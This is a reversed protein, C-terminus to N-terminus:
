SRSALGFLQDLEGEELRLPRQVLRLRDHHTQQLERDVDQLALLRVGADADGERCREDAVALRRHLEEVARRPQDHGHRLHRADGDPAMGHRVRHSQGSGPVRQFFCKQM